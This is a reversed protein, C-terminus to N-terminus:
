IYKLNLCVAIQKEANKLPSISGQGSSNAPTKTNSRGIGFVDNMTPNSPNRKLKPNLTDTFKRAATNSKKRVKNAHLNYM